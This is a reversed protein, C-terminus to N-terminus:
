NAVVGSVTSSNDDCGNKGAACLVPPIGPATGPAGPVAPTAGLAVEVVVTTLNDAAVGRSRVLVTGNGDTTYNGARCEATDNRIWVTYRGMTSAVPAIATGSTRGFSAPPFAVNSLTVAGDVFVAGVGNPKGSADLGTPVDDQGPTTGALMANVNVGANLAARAREVGAEAVVLAQARLNTNAQVQLNGQTLWLGTIGLGLLGLVLLMVVLLVSGRQGERMTPIPRKTM